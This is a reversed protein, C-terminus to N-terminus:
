KGREARRTLDIIHRRDYRFKRKSNRTYRASQKLSQVIKKLQIHSEQRLLKQSRRNLELQLASRKQVIAGNPTNRTEGWEEKRKVRAPEEPTTQKKRLPYIQQMAQGLKTKFRIWKRTANEHEKMPETDQHESKRGRSPMPATKTLKEPRIRLKRIEYKFMGGTVPPIPTTYKKAANYYLQMTQVSQQQRHHMNAPWNTNRHSTRVAKRYKANITIYDIQRRGMDGSSTRATLCEGKIDHVWLEKTMNARHQYKGM